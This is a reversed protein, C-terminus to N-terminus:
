VGESIGSVFTRRVTLGSCSGPASNWGPPSGSRSGREETPSPPLKTGSRGGGGSAKTPLMTGPSAPPSVTFSGEACCHGNRARRGMWHPDQPRAQRTCHRLVGSTSAEAPGDGGLPPFPTPPAHHRESRNNLTGPSATGARSRGPATQTGM